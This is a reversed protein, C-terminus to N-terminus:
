EQTRRLRRMARSWEDATGVHEPNVCEAGLECEPMRYMRRNAPLPKASLEALRRIINCGKPGTWTWCGNDHREVDAMIAQEVGDM